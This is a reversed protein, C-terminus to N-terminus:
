RYRRVTRAGENRSHLPDDLEIRRNDRTYISVYAEEESDSCTDHDICSVAGKCTCPKSPSRRNCEEEFLEAIESDEICHFRNSM